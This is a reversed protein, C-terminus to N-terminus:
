FRVRLAIEARSPARSSEVLHLSLSGQELPKVIGLGLDMGADPASRGPSFQGALTAGVKTDRFMRVTAEGRTRLISGDAQFRAGAGFHARQGVPRDLTVALEGAAATGGTLGLDMGTRGIRPRLGVYVDLSADAEAGAPTAARM